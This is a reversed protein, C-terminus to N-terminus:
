SSHHWIYQLLSLYATSFIVGEAEGHKLLAFVPFIEHIVALITYQVRWELKFSRRKKSKVCYPIFENIPIWQALKMICGVKKIHASKLGFYNNLTQHIYHDGICM